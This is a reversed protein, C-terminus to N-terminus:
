VPVVATEEAERKAISSLLVLKAIPVVVYAVEVTRVTVEVEVLEFIRM